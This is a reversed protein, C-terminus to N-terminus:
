WRKERFAKTIITGQLQVLNLRVSTTGTIGGQFLLAKFIGEGVNIDNENEVYKKMVM